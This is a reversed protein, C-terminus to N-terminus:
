TSSVSYLSSGAPIGQPAKELLNFHPFSHNKRNIDSIGVYHDSTNVILFCIKYFLCCCIYCFCVQLIGYLEFCYQLKVPNIHFLDLAGDYRGHHRRQNIHYFTCNCLNYM